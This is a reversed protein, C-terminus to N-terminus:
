KKSVSECVCLCVFSDGYLPVPSKKPNFYGSKVWKIRDNQKTWSFYAIGQYATHDSPLMM